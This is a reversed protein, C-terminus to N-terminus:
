AQSPAPEFAFGPTGSLGQREVQLEGEYTKRGQNSVRLVLPVRGLSKHEGGGAAKCFVEVVGPGVHEAAEFYFTAVAPDSLDAIVKVRDDAIYYESQGHTADHFDGAAAVGSHADAHAPAAAVAIENAEPPACPCPSEPERAPLSDFRLSGPWSTQACSFSLRCIADAPIHEFVACGHDNTWAPIRARNSWPQFRGESANGRPAGPPASDTDGSLTRSSSREAMRNVGAASSPQETIALTVQLDSLQHPEFRATDLEELAAKATAIVLSHEIRNNAVTLLREKASAIGLAGLRQCAALRVVHDSSDLDAEFGELDDEGIAGARLRELRSALKVRLTVVGQSLPQSTLFIVLPGVPRIFEEGAKFPRLLAENVAAILERAEPTEFFANM